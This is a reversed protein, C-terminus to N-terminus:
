NGNAAECKADADMSIVKRSPKTGHYTIRGSVNAATAPDAHFYEVTPAATKTEEKKQEQNCALTALLAAVTLSRCVRSRRCMAGSWPRSCRERRSEPRFSSRGWTAEM